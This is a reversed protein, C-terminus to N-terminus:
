VQSQQYECLTPSHELLYPFGPQLLLCNQWTMEICNSLIVGSSGAARAKRIIQKPDERVCFSFKM